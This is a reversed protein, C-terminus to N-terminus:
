EDLWPPRGLPPMLEGVDDTGPHPPPESEGDDDEWRRGGWGWYPLPRRPVIGLTEMPDVREGGVTCVHMWSDGFDFEYVFREDPKLRSLRTSSADLAPEDDMDFSGVDM